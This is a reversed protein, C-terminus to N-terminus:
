PNPTLPLTETRELGFRGGGNKRPLEKEPASLEFCGRVRRVKIFILLLLLYSHYL